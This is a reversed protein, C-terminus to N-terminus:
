VSLPLESFKTSSVREFPQYSKKPIIKVIFVWSRKMSFRLTTKEQLTQPLGRSLREIVEWIQTESCGWMDVRIVSRRSLLACRTEIAVLGSLNRSNVQELANRRLSSERRDRRNLLVSLVIIPSVIMSIGVLESMGQLM